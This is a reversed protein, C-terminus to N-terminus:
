LINRLTEQTLLETVGVAETVMWGLFLLYLGL